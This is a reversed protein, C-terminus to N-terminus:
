PKMEQMTTRPALRRKRRLVRWVVSPAFLSSPPKRLNSVQHFASGLEPDSWAGEFLRALYANVLTVQSGRIGKTDPFALDSGAALSWPIDVIKVARAKFRHWSGPLGSSLSAELAEAELCAVTMGQGFIPNFSCLADGFVLLGQPFRPLREYHRRLSSPFRYSVVESLPEARVIADYLDPTPLSRAFELFGREDTPPHDGLMGHLTVM